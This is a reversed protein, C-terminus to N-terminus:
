TRSDLSTELQLTERKHSGKKKRMRKNQDLDELRVYRLMRLRRRNKRKLRWEEEVEM